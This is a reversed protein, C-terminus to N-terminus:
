QKTAILPDIFHISIDGIFWLFKILICLLKYKFKFLLLNMTEQEKEMSLDLSYINGSGTIQNSDRSPFCVQDYFDEIIINM